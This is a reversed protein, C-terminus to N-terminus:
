REQRWEAFQEWGALLAEHAVDVYATEAVVDGESVVGDSVLLRGKVLDAIVDAIVQRQATGGMNLLVEKPQRQRTDKDGRGVRVLQLCIRQAWPRDVERLNDYVDTAQRNLAGTLGDMAEYASVTLKRKQPERRDWLGTLAFELLPM